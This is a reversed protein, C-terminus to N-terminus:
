KIERLIDVQGFDRFLNLNLFIFVETDIFAM